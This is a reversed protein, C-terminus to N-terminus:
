GLSLSPIHHFCLLLRFCDSMNRQHLKQEEIADTKDRYNSKGSIEQAQFNAAMAKGLRGTGIDTIGPDGVASIYQQNDKEEATKRCKQRGHDSPEHHQRRGPRLM